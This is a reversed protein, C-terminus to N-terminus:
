FYEEMDSPLGRVSGTAMQLTEREERSGERLRYLATQMDALNRVNPNNFHQHAKEDLHDFALKILVEPLGADKMIKTIRTPHHQIMFLMFRNQRPPQVLPQVGQKKAAQGYIDIIMHKVYEANVDIDTTIVSYDHCHRQKYDPKDLIAERLGQRFTTKIEMYKGISIAKQGERGIRDGTLPRETTHVVTLYDDQKMLQQGQQSYDLPYNYLYVNIFDNIAYQIETHFNYWAHKDNTGNEIFSGPSM